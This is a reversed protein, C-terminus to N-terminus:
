KACPMCTGAPVEKLVCQTTDCAPAKKKVLVTKTRKECDGCGCSGSFWSFLSCHKVCYEKCVSTYVTKTNKKPEMVCITTKVEHATVPAPATTMRSSANQTETFSVSVPPQTLPLLRNGDQAPSANALCFGIALALLQKM